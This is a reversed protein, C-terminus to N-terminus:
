TRNDTALKQLREAALRCVSQHDQIDKFDCREPPNHRHDWIVLWGPSVYTVRLYSNFHWISYINNLSELKTGLAALDRTTEM